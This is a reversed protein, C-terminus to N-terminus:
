KEGRNAAFFRQKSGNIFASISKLDEATLLFARAAERRGRSNTLFTRVFDSTERV